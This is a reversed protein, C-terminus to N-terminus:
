IKQELSYSLSAGKKDTNLAFIKTKSVEGAFLINDLKYAGDVAKSELMFEDSLKTEESKGSGRSGCATFIGIFLILCLIIIKSKM